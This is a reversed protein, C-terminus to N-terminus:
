REGQPAPDPGLLLLAAGAHVLVRDGVTVPQVLDIMVDSRAGNEAVCVALSAGQRVEAVRMPLAEDSCTTCGTLPHCVFPGRTEGPRM